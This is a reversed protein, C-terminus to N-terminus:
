LRYRYQFMLVCYGVYIDVEPKVHLYHSNQIYGNQLNHNLDNKKVAFFIGLFHGHRLSIKESNEHWYCHLPGDVPDTTPLM